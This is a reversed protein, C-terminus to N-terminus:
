ADEDNAMYHWVLRGDDCDYGEIYGSEIHKRLIDSAEALEEDPTSPKVEPKGLVENLKDRLEELHDRVPSMALLKLLDDCQSYSFYVDHESISISAAMDDGRAVIEFATTILDKNFTGLM